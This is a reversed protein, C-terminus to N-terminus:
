HYLDLLVEKFSDPSVNMDGSFPFDMILITFLIMAILVSMLTTMILQAKLNESGFFFAFVVTIIGGFLLVAWLMPHIGTQADLIRQRRLEGADNMKSLIEAFFAKESETKPEYSGYLQWIKNSIDQVKSSRQGHALLKWEDNIVADIYSDMETKMSSRFPESLGASDRYIDAYFNAEQVVNNNTKDFNQWVIVLVYSLMVAYVVGITAFIPGAIDHHSKLTRVNVFRHVLLVGCVATGIAIVLIVSGILWTPVNVLIWQQIPM